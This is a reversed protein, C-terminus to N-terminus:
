INPEENKTKMDKVLSYLYIGLAIWIFVFAILQGQTLDEKYVFVGIALMCIPNIYQFFGVTNFPIISVALSYFVLPVLTVVGTLIILIIIQIDGTSFAGQGLSEFKFMFYFAFPLVTLTEIFLSVFSDINNIKKAIGYLTFFISILIAVLPFEGYIVTSLIVGISALALSIKSLMNLKEKFFITGVLVIALPNIFYGLAASVTNGGTVAFIFTLWNLTVFVGAFMALVVKKPQKMVKKLEDGKKLVILLLITLIFSFIIRSSIIYLSDFDTLLKWYLPLLGWIVYSLLAYIYGKKDKVM